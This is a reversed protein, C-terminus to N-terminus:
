LASRIAAGEQSRARELCGDDRHRLHTQESQPKLSAGKGALIHNRFDWADDRDIAFPEEDRLSGDEIRLGLGLRRDLLFRIPQKLFGILMHLSVRRWEPDPALLPRAFFPALGETAALEREL